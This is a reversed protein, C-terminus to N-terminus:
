FSDVLCPFMLACELCFTFFESTHQLTTPTLPSTPAQSTSQAATVTAKCQLDSKHIDSQGSVSRSPEDLVGSSTARIKLTPSSTFLPSLSSLRTQSHKLFLILLCSTTALEPPSPLPSNLTDGLSHIFGGPSTPASALGSGLSHNCLVALHM